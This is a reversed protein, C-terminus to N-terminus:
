LGVHAPLAGNIGTTTIRGQLAALYTQTPVDGGRAGSGGGAKAKQFHAFDDSDLSEKIFEAAPKNTGRQRVVIKGDVRVAELDGTLLRVAQDAAKENLFERGAIAKTITVDVRSGLVESEAEALKAEVGQRNAREAAISREAEERALRLAAEHDGKKTAADIEMRNAASKMENVQQRSELLSRYEDNPLSVVASSPPPPAALSPAPAPIPTAPVPTAPAPSGGGSPGTDGPELLIRSRMSM